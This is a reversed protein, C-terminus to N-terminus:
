FLLLTHVIILIHFYKCVQKGIEKDVRLIEM